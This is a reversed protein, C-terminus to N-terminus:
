ETALQGCAARIDEGKSWRVTANLGQDLLQRQWREVNVRDPSHFGLGANENYPILNVKVPIGQLLFPLRQLDDNRDNVGKLLV